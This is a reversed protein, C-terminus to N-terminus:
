PVLIFLMAITVDIANITTMVIIFMTVTTSSINSIRM